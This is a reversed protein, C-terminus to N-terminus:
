HELTVAMTQTSNHEWNELTAATGPNGTSSSIAVVSGSTGDPIGDRMTDIAQAVDGPVNYFMLVNNKRGNIEYHSFWITVTSKGTFEGDVSRQFPQYGSSCPSNTSDKIDTKIGECIDIGSISINGELKNYAGPLTLATTNGDMFGDISTETAQGGNNVSDYINSGVRSFYSNAVVEWENVYTQSFEKIQTSKLLDRGKMVSALIIGIIILVISIEILTFAKRKM